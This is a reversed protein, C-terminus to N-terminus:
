FYKTNSLFLWLIFRFAPATAFVQCKLLFRVMKSIRSDSHQSLGHILYEFIWNIIFIGSGLLKLDM